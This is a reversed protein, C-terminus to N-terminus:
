GNKTVWCRREKALFVVAATQQKKSLIYKCYRWQAIVLVIINFIKTCNNQQTSIICWFVVFSLNVKCLLRNHINYSIVFKNKINRGWFLKEKYSQLTWGTYTLPGFDFAKEM